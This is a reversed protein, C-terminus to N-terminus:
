RLGAAWLWTDGGEDIDVVVMLAFQRLPQRAIEVIMMIKRLRRQVNMQIVLAAHFDRDQFSASAVHLLKCVMDNGFAADAMPLDDIQRRGCMVM